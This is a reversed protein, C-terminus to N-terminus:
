LLYIRLSKHYELDAINWFQDSGDSPEAAFEIKYQDTILGDVIQIRTIKVGTQQLTGSSMLTFVLFTSAILMIGLSIATLVTKKNKKM